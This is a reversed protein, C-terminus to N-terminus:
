PQVQVKQGPRLMQGGAFVVSQGTELDGTVAITDINYRDIVVPKLSVTSTKPDVVWVAPKGDIEFLSGWPLLFVKQARRPATGNVVSGLSMAAPTERLGIRVAVTMTNPNVAASIERVDGVTKISSDTVTAVTVGTDFALNTLAWEYVNFVADRPGDQALVFAPQAQAVVQGPDINRAVIIGAAGAHLKTFSLNDQATGLQAKAQDLQAQAMSYAASAQDYDHRTANGTQVLNKLRELSAANQALLAEASRVGAKASDVDAHQEVPDLKALVQDATVHDGIDVYCESIKGSLRFGLDAQVQATIVGTLTITPAFETLKATAVRVQALPPSVAEEKCGAGLCLVALLGVLSSPRIEIERAAISAAEACHRMGVM